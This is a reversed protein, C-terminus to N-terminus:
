AVAADSKLRLIEGPYIWHPDEVVTTNMQYLRPWQVPDGYYQRALDWLTDGEKVTHTEPVSLEPTQARAPGVLAVAFAFVLVRAPVRPM